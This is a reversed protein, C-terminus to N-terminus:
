LLIKIRIFDVIKSIVIIYLISNDYDCMIIRSESSLDNRYLM